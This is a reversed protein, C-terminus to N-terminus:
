RNSSLASIFVGEELREDSRYRNAFDLAPQTMTVIIDIQLGRYKKALLALFEQEFGSFPFRQADLTESFFQFRRTTNKALAARMASDIVVYAPLYPDTANLFLVRTEQAAVREPAAVVCLAMALVLLRALGVAFKMRPWDSQGFGQQRGAVPMYARGFQDTDSM